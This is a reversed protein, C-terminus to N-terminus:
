SFLEDLARKWHLYRIGDDLRDKQDQSIVWAECQKFDDMFTRLYKAHSDTAVTGSKIELLITARGPREVILDIEAGDKTRLYSFKYQKRLYHNLRIVELVIFHEFSNGYGYTQPTIPVTLTGRIAKLVGLDFLYFRPSQSQQKRISRSYSPIYFGILTDELIQFYRAVAKADVQCDEAVQAFNVIQGNVQAAVELFRTFPDLNRVIQEERIEERLYTAFYSLLTEAKTIPDKESCILPLSGWNLVEDLKFDEGIEVHTLPFLNNVLARGALLNAAGRKLKRASSGTLGFFIKGRIKPNELILHVENLLKPIRQVEDIVVWRKESTSSKVLEEIQKSLLEPNRSYTIFDRDSLLDIWLLANSEFNDRLLHSKGTGRAGLLLFSKTRLINITRQYM